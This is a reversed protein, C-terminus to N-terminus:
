PRHRATRQRRRREIGVVDVVVDDRLRVRGAL